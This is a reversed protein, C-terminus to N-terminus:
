YWRLFRRRKPASGPKPRQRYELEHYPSQIPDLRTAIMMADGYIQFM